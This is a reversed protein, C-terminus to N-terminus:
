REPTRVIKKSSFLKYSLLDVFTRFYNRICSYLHRTSFRCNNETRQIEKKLIVVSSDGSTEVATRRKHLM